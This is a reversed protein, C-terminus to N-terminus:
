LYIVNVSDKVEISLTEPLEVLRGFVWTYPKKKTIKITTTSEVIIHNRKLDNFYAKRSEEYNNSSCIRSSNFRQRM